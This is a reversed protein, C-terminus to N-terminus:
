LLGSRDLLYQLHMFRGLFRVELGSWQSMKQPVIYDLPGAQKHFPYQLHPLTGPRELVPLQKDVRASGSCYVCAHMHVSSEILACVINSGDYGKGYLM